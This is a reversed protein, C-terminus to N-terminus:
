RGVKYSVPPPIDDLEPTMPEECVDRGSTVGRVAVSLIPPDLGTTTGPDLEDLYLLGVVEGEPVDLRRPEVSEPDCLDIPLLGLLYVTGREPETPLERGELLPELGDTLLLPEELPPERDEETRLLRGDPLLEREETPLLRGEPPLERGEDLLLRGEPPLEDL